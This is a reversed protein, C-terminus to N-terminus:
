GVRKSGTAKVMPLKGGTVTGINSLGRGSTSPALVLGKEITNFSTVSLGSKKLGSKIDAVDIGEMAAIQAAIMECVLDPNELYIARQGMLEKWPGNNGDPYQHSNVSIRFVEFSEEAMLLVEEATLDKQLSDGIWTKVENVSLTPYFAEDGIVFLYGKKSRKILCDM